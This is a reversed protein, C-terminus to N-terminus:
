DNSSLFTSVTNDYPEAEYIDNEAATNNYNVYDTISQCVYYADMSMASAADTYSSPMNSFTTNLNEADKEATSCASAAAGFYTDASSWDGDNGYDIGTTENSIAGGKFDSYITSLQNYFSQEVQATSAAQAAAQAEAAAQQAAAAQAQEAAEANAAEQAQAAAKEQAAQAAAAQAQVKATQAAQLQIQAQQAQNQLQGEIDSSVSNIATQVEGYQPFDNPISQLLSQASLLTSSPTSSNIESVALNYNGQDQIYDNEQGKLTELKQKDSEFTWRGEVATLVSLADAYNGQNQLRMATAIASNVSLYGSIKPAAYVTSGFLLVVVIIVIWIRLSIKKFFFKRRHVSGGQTTLGSGCHRCFNSGERNERGCNSCTM